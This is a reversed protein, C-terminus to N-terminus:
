LKQVFKEAMSVVSRRALPSTRKQRRQGASPRRPSTRSSGRRVRRPRWGERVAATQDARRAAMALAGGVTALLQVKQWDARRGGPYRWIMWISSSVKRFKSPASHFPGVGVVSSQMMRQLEAPLAQSSITFQPQACFERVARAAEVRLRVGDTLSTVWELEDSGARYRGKRYGRQQVGYREFFEGHSTASTAM